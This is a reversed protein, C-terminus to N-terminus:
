PSKKEPGHRIHAPRFSPRQRTEPTFGLPNIDVTEVSCITADPTSLACPTGCPRSWWPKCAFLGGMVALVCIILAALLGKATKSM